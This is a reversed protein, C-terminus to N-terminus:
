YDYQEGADDNWYKRMVPDVTADFEEIMCQVLVSTSSAKKGGSAMPTDILSLFTNPVLIISPSHLHLQHLTKVYTPSDM